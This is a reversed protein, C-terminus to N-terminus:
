LHSGVQQATRFEGKWPGWVERVTHDTNCLLLPTLCRAGSCWGEEAFVHAQVCVHAYMSFLAFLIFCLSHAHNPGKDRQFYFSNILMM